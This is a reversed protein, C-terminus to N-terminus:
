GRRDRPGPQPQAHLEGSFVAAVSWAAIFLVAAYFAALLMM